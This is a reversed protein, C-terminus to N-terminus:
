NLLADLAEAFIVFAFVAFPSLDFRFCTSKVAPVVSRAGFKFHNLFLQYKELGM